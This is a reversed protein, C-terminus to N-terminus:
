APMVTKARAVANGDGTDATAHAEGASVILPWPPSVPIWKGCPALSATSWQM